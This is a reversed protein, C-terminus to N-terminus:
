EYMFKQDSHTFTIQQTGNFNVAIYHDAALIFTDTKIVSNNIVVKLEHRGGTQNLLLQGDAACVGLVPNTQLRKSLAPTGDIYLHVSDGAFNEQMDVGLVFTEQNQRCSLLVVGFLSSAIFFKYRMCNLKVTVVVFASWWVSLDTANM